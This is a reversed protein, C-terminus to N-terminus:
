FFFFRDSVSFRDSFINERGDIKESRPIEIAKSFAYGVYPDNDRFVHKLFFFGVNKNPRSRPSFFINKTSVKKQSLKYCLSCFSFIPTKKQQSSNMHLTNLLFFGRDAMTNLLFVGRDWNPWKTRDATVKYPNRHCKLTFFQSKWIKQNKRGSKSLKKVLFWWFVYFIM